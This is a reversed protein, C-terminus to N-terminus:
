VGAAFRVVRCTDGLGHLVIQCGAMNKRGMRAVVCDAGRVPGGCHRGGIVGGGGGDWIAGAGVNWGCARECGGGGFLGRRRGSV